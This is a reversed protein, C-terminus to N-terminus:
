PKRAVVALTRFEDTSGRADLIERYSLEDFWTELVFGLREILRLVSAADPYKRWLWEETWNFPDTFVLTGGRRLVRYAERLAREPGHPLRDVINVSFILDATRNKLPLNEVDARSFVPRENAYTPITLRPFGYAPLTVVVPTAGHVIRRALALM